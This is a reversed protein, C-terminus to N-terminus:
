EESKGCFRASIAGNRRAPNGSHVRRAVENGQPSCGTRHVEAAAAGKIEFNSFNRVVPASSVYTELRHSVLRARAV